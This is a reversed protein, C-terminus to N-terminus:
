PISRLREKALAYEERSALDHRNLFEQYTKKASDWLKLKEFLIGSAFYAKAAPAQHGGYMVYVRQYYPMAKEPHGLAEQIEGLRCLARAAATGRLGPAKLMKELIPTVEAHRKQEFLIDARAELIRPLLPSSAGEKEFTEFLALAEQPQGRSAALIGLAALARHCEPTGPCDALHRLLPEADALHGSDALHEAIEIAIAPPLLKPPVDRALGLYAARTTEPCSKKALRALLWACRAALTRRGATRSRAALTSLEHELATREDPTKHIKACTLLLPEVTRNTPDDGLREIANRYLTPVEHARDLRRLAKSLADYAEALRPSTPHTDIFARFHDEAERHRESLTLAKGIQFQAYQHLSPQGKGITRYADIGEDIDGAALCADGYLAQAEDTLPHGAFDKLWRALAKRADARQRMAYRAAAIRYLADAKFAGSPYAALYEEFRAIALAHDKAFLAAMARWHLAQEALPSGPHLSRMREFIETAGTNDQLMLAAYGALFLARDAEEFEPYERALDLFTRRAADFDGLKLHAHAALFTTKPLRPDNPHERAFLCQRDLLSTWRRDEACAAIAIFQAAPAITGQTAALAAEQAALAAERFRGLAMAAHALRLLRAADFDTASEIAAKEALLAERRQAARMACASPPAARGPTGDTLRALSEEHKALIRARSPIFLLCRWAAAAEGKELFRDGLTLALTALLAQCTPTPDRHRISELLRFADADSGLGILCHLRMLAARESDLGNSSSAIEAFRTEAERLNGEKQACLAALFQAHSLQPHNPCARAFDDLAARANAADGTQLLATGLWLSMDPRNEGDPFRALYDRIHPIAADPQKTALLSAVLMPLIRPRAANAEPSSGYLSLFRTFADAAEPHRAAHFAGFGTTLLLDAPADASAPPPPAQAPAVSPGSADARRGSPAVGLALAM